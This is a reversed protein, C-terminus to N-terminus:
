PHVEVLGGARHPRAEGLVGVLSAPAQKPDGDGALALAEAPIDQRRLADLAASAPPPPPPAAKTKPSTTDAIVKMPELRIKIPESKGAQLEIDRSSTVFGGRKVELTHKGPPVSIEVSEKDGPIKVTIRQKGDVLVEAGPQEIELVLVAEGEATKVNIKFIVGALLWGGLVLALVATGAGALPGPRKWWAKRVTRGNEEAAPVAVTNGPLAPPAQSAEKPHSTKGGTRTGTGPAAGGSAPSAVGAKIFAAVAQAVEVPQQYHHAPDKALLRAAVASLAEPVEPRLSRVPPAEQELHALVVQMVTEGEFPPRGALL